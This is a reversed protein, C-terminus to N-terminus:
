AAVKSTDAVKPRKFYFSPGVVFVLEWGDSGQPNLFGVLDHGHFEEVQYEWKSRM